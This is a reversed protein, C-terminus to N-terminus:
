SSFVSFNGSMVIENLMYVIIITNPRINEHFLIVLKGNVLTQTNRAFYKILDVLKNLM